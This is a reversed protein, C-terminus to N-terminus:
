MSCYWNHRARQSQPVHLRFSIRHKYAAIYEEKGGEIICDMIDEHCKCIEGHICNIINEADVDEVVFDFHIM